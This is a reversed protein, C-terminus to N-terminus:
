GDRGRIRRDLILPMFKLDGIEIEGGETNAVIWDWYVSKLGRGIQIRGERFEGDSSPTIRYWNEIREGSLSVTVAKLVVPKSARFGLYLSPFRKERGSGMNSLGLRVHANIDEGADDDGELEYVGDEAAGLWYNEDFECFSNFPYNEYVTAARTETNVVWALFLDDGIRVTLAFTVTELLHEFANLSTTADGGIAFSEDVIASLRATGAPVSALLISEVLQEAADLHSAVIDAFAASETIQERMVVALADNIGLAESILSLLEATTSPGAVLRLVEFVREIAIWTPTAAGTLALSEALLMRWIVAIQDIVDLRDSLHEIAQLYSQPTDTVAITERIQNILQQVMTAQFVVTDNVFEKSYGSTMLMVGPSELLLLVAGPPTVNQEAILRGRGHISGYNPSFSGQLRGRANISGDGYDAITGEGVLRGSGRILGYSPHPETLGQAARLAGHGHISGYSAFSSGALRGRGHLTGGFIRTGVLRGRGHLVGFNPSFSGRLSGRGQLVGTGSVDWTTMTAFTPTSVHDGSQFIAIGVRNAGEALPCTAFETGGIKFHATTGIHEIRLVTGAVIGQATGLSTGYSVPQAFMQTGITYVYFAAAINTPSTVDLRPPFLPNLGLMEGATLAPVTWQVFCPTEKQSISNAGADWARDIITDIHAPVAAIFPQEDCDVCYAGTPYTTTICRETM